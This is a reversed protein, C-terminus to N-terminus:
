TADLSAINEVNLVSWLGKTRFSQDGDARLLYLRQNRKRLNM